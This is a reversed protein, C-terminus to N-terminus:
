RAGIVWRGDRFAASSKDKMTMIMNRRMGTMSDVMDIMVARAAELNHEEM